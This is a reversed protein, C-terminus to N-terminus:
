LRSHRVQPALLSLYEATVPKFVLPEDSELAAALRPWVVATAFWTGDGRPSAVTEVYGSCLRATLASTPVLLVARGFGFDTDIPSAGGASLIVTPCGLGLSPTEVYREPKHDEVWDVLEQFHEDYAPAAIAERVMEAVGPLPLGLVEQVSAERDVFTVVNGVYNRMAARLEPSSALRRRGDVWWGMRCHADATGVVGALVKWLYASVAQVRTARTDGDRSAMKQLRAIDSAEIYYLRQVFSQQTTLVNVQRQPDLPSFAEDLAASSYSPPVRPRFVSRDHNPRSGAALTGTRMLESWAGVLLSTASGDALLHNTSWAVTFGGCAFSVVQVSLPMDEGYPLQIKRLCASMNGYDLSALTVGAVEGVVLEAGQNNCHLEPLGTNPDTAIRGAFPFFHNLLSPLRAEFAAVVAGFDATPPKPYIAFLSGQITLPVLDLNSVALVHPKISDDSAQVLRRSVERVHLHDDGAIISAM